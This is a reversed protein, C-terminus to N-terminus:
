LVACRCGPNDTKEVRDVEMEVKKKNEVKQAIPVKDPLGVKKDEAKTVGKGGNEAYKMSSDGGNPLKGINAYGETEPKGKVPGKNPSPDSPPLAHAIKGGAPPTSVAPKNPPVKVPVPKRAFEFVPVPPFTVETVQIVDFDEPTRKVIQHYKSIPVKFDGEDEM